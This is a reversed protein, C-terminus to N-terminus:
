HGPEFIRYTISIRHVEGMYQSIGHSFRGCRVHVAKRERMLVTYYSLEYRYM